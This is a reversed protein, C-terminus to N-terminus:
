NQTASSKSVTKSAGGEKLVVGTLLDCAYTGRVEGSGSKVLCGAFDGSKAKVHSGVFFRGQMWGHMMAGGVRADVRANQM